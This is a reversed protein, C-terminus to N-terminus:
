CASLFLYVSHHSDKSVEFGVWQCVEKLLSVGGLDKGFLEVLQPGLIWIQSDLTAVQM